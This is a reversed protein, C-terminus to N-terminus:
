IPYPTDNEDIENSNENHFYIEDWNDWNSDEDDDPIHFDDEILDDEHLHGFPNMFAVVYISNVSNCNHCVHTKLGGSEELLETLKKFLGDDEELELESTSMFVTFTKISKESCNHCRGWFAFTHPCYSGM